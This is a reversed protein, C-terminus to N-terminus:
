IRSTTQRFNRDKVIVLKKTKITSMSGFVRQLYFASSTANGFLAFSAQGQKLRVRFTFPRNARRPSPIEKWALNLVNEQVHLVMSRKNQELVHSVMSKGQGDLEFQKAHETVETANALCTKGITKSGFSLTTSGRCSYSGEKSIVLNGPVWTHQIEGMIQIATHSFLHALSIASIPGHHRVQGNIDDPGM